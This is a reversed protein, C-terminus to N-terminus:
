MGLKRITYAKVAEDIMSGWNPFRTVKRIYDDWDKDPTQIFDERSGIRFGSLAMLEEITDLSTHQKVFEPPFLEAFSISHEGELAQGRGMLGELETQLERFGKDEIHM